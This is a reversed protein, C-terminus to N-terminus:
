EAPVFFRIAVEFTRATPDTTSQRFGFDIAARPSAWGTGVSWWKTKSLDDVQFGGRIPVAHDFLYEAGVSYRNTPRSKGSADKSRDMDVRWDGVVQLLTDKGIAFGAGYGRPMIAEHKSSILNYAVGGISVMSTVQYYAGTDVNLTSSVREAGQLDFYNAQAGLFLGQGVPAAVALRILTGTEVGSNARVYGLGAAVATTSSDAVAGGFYDQQGLAGALGPRRDTLYFTDVTYRKRAALAAPNLFLAENFTAAGIGAQLALTRPGTLDPVTLPPPPDAAAAAGAASLLALLALPRTHV